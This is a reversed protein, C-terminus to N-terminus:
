IIFPIYNKTAKKYDEYADGFKALNEREEVKSAAVLFAISIFCPVISKLSVDKLLIGTNLFILSAFLPHRIRSYIGRTVLQTTNEFNGIPKGYKTLGFFGSVAMMISIFLFIWSLIHPWLFPRRFWFDLNFYLLVLLAESVFFMYFDHNNLSRLKSKFGLFVLLGLVVFISTKVSM